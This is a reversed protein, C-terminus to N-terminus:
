VENRGQSLTKSQANLIEWGEGAPQLHSSYFEKMVRILYWTDMVGATEYPSHMALQPLGIDVTNLSVHANSLNGLTSGGAIDSHNAYSQCPVGARACLERFIAASVADTTYKQNANFKVVPGGNLFPRNVPDAKDMHNPHLAHANDASVMFSAAVATRYEELSRGLSFNIRELVDSLMTSDAGQKTLSGVEENDFICCVSVSRPNGGALFGQMIAYASQLDDLRPASFYEQSAGWVAGPTRCYLFLDSALVDAEEAGAAQAILKSFMGRSREDGFIPILDKQPHYEYGSNIQRDMHIALNPLMLLDRDINVLRTELKGDQKVVARGAVSLPRDFWPAFIMGGYRETNLEVYRGGMAMEPNEKIKFSPSDSHAASIQFNAFDKEPVSFAILSSGNRTVFYRGGKKLNWASTEPLREFGQVTLMEEFRRIVHFVSPTEEIFRLLERTTQRSMEWAAQPHLGNLNHTSLDQTTM